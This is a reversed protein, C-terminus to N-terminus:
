QPSQHCGYCGFGQYTKPDYPAVDLIDVMMPTVVDNMFAYGPGSFDVKDFDLSFVAPMAFSKDENDGHCTSCNFDKYKEADYKQFEAKMDPLVCS